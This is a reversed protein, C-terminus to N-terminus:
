QAESAGANDAALLDNTISSVLFESGKNSLHAQDSAVVDSALPGIRTMCGDLNCFRRWASFYEVHEAKSFQEM